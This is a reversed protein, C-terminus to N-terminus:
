NVKARYRNVFRGLIKQAYPTPSIKLDEILQEAEDPKFYGHNKYIDIRLEFGEIDGEPHFQTAYINNQVRFMQVPCDSGTILLKAGEPVTDCAEKHGLLVSINEPFGTLLPDKTGQETLRLEVCSVSESYKTSINAGLYKGLLGNGSCAGLFPFDCAMIKDFLHDFDNEIKKQIQSKDDVATSIDFPSGGVIIASYNDLSLEPIGTKEIRIRQVDEAGLAGYKLFADFENDSTEDEPRM